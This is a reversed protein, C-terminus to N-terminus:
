NTYFIPIEQNIIWDKVPQALLLSLGGHGSIIMSNPHNNRVRTLEKQITENSVPLVGVDSFKSLVYEVIVNERLSGTERAEDTALITVSSRKIETGFVGLLKKVVKLGSPSGDFYFIVHDVPSFKGPYIYVPCNLNSLFEVYKNNEKLFEAGACFVDYLVSHESIYDFNTHPKNPIKLDIGKKALDDKLQCIILEADTSSKTPSIVGKKSVKLNNPESSNGDIILAELDFSEWNPFVQLIESAEYHSHNNVGIIVSKAMGVDNRSAAHGSLANQM